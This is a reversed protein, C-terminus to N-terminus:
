IFITKTQQPKSATVLSAARHSASFGNVMVPNSLTQADEAQDNTAYPALPDNLDSDVSINNASVINGSISYSNTTANVTITTSAMDTAGSNDTVTLTADYTGAVTYTHSITTGTGNEGDGFSWSYKSITGDPDNSETADM